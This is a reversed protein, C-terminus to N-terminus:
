GIRDEGHNSGLLDVVLTETLVKFKQWRYSVIPILPHKVQLPLCGHTRENKALRSVM